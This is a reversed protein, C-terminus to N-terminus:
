SAPSAEKLLRMRENRHMERTWKDVSADNWQKTGKHWPNANTSSEATAAAIARLNQKLYCGTGDFDYYSVYPWARHAGHADLEVNAIPSTRPSKDSSQVIDLMCLHCRGNVRDAPNCPSGSKGDFPGGVSRMQFGRCYPNTNCICACEGFPSM